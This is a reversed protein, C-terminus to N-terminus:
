EEDNADDVEPAGLPRHRIQRQGQPKRARVIAMMRALFNPELRYHYIKQGKRKKPGVQELRLGVLRLIAGLQQIPKSNVDKRVEIGLHTEIVTKHKILTNAFEALDALQIVARSDLRDSQMVPTLQLLMLITTAKSAETAVFRTRDFSHFSLRALDPNELVSEFLRVQARFRRRDDLRILDESVPKRYFLELTTREYSLRDAESVWEGAGLADRIEHCEGPTLTKASLIAKCYNEDNLRKGKALVNKGEALFHEDKQIREIRFGQKQKHRIFNSKLDNKSARQETLILSAMELFIDNEQYQPEGVDTYGILLNKFLSRELADRKVVDFETEFHFRRPSVWVKVAGPHRVRSLQQDFDLHTTIQAECFGFVLDFVQAKGPFAIDVGTGISPSAFVIDYRAASSAPAAIFEKVEDNNATDSTITIIRRKPFEDFIAAALKAMKMKSNSIVFCRKGGAVAQKLEAILHPEADFIQIAKGEGPKAENLWLHKDKREDMRSLSRFTVWGLDADLAIVTTAQRVLRRIEVFIRDRSGGGRDMTSSLFHALVQESEDLVVVDFRAKPPIRALSDLCIGYRSPRDAAPGSDDDLYCHLGLQRCTQRILARRHGILLVSKSNRLLSRLRATKGTGKPSHVMVIGPQLTAPTAQGDVIRITSGTLGASPSEPFGLIPALPGYDQHNEYYAAAERVTREFSDFVDDAPPSSGRPWYTCGCASCYIGNTGHRNALVFASPHKDNHFPCHITTGPALESFQVPGGKAVRIEQDPRVLLRSRSPTWDLKGGNKITEPEPANMGQAILEALLEPSMERDFLMLEANRNGFFMRAADVTKRDGSVRLRLARAIASMERADTITRPLVFIIRFRPASPQHNVTTYLLAAHARVTPNELAEAIGFGDDIDVSAIDSAQFHDADRYGFLHACYPRGNKISAALEEVTLEVNTWGEVYHRNEYVDKDIIDPHVSLRLRRVLTSL